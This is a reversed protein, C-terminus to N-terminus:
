RRARRRDHGDGGGGERGLPNTPSPRRGYPRARVVAARGGVARPLHRPEGDAPQGGRRLAGEEYLAAAIGQAIGGHVQGDVIIPNVSPASTTSRSTASSGHTARRPTSRSSRPTRAAPGPSTRRTTSRRRRSARSWGTPCTTRRSAGGVRGGQDDDGQGPSGKVTFTGDAYELDDGSVELQHAVIQRAKEIVKEARTGSRSVASRRPQPQRVHGDRAALRRHRRAPGRGRRARVRAPRRRDAGVGDRSGPRAAVHRHRGPDLRDAPLPDTATDWGGAAYRIAGLIRSPALGCMENYTSFGVGLQKADGRDRRAQRSRGSRTTPRADRAAPRAVGRLRRLRDHSGVRDHEPVGHHLEQPSARRTSGSSQARARGDDARDVYTAEPRGAGRYADTPTTNTFVGTFTVSYNPIDYAGPTSGRASSRSARAHRAPPVRGDGGDRRARVATITGDTTAALTDDGHVVDRGHITALYNESREETWKVPRGLRRALALALLEEAYVDLKSGFGGGVDPAVVRLKSEPMGLTAAALSACSTRSRRRRGCRSTARQRARSCRPRGAARDREPDPAAPLLARTVVVDADDIAERGDRGDRAELRLVVNTGLDDHVLPAGDELAKEVDVVAALPEYDVEVLEAADKALARSRPSSSRSATARTARRTPAAPLPTANKMDETVPWACPCPRRGTTRSTPRRSSPSSAKRRARPPSTSVSSSTRTRTRAASSAM